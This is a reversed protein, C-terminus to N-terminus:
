ALIHIIDNPIRIQSPAPKVYRIFELIRRHLVGGSFWMVVIGLYSAMLPSTWGDIVLHVAGTFEQDPLNTTANSLIDSSVSFYQKVINSGGEYMASIDRSITSPSPLKTGPRLM